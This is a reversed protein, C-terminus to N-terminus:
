DDDEDDGGDDGSDDDEDDDVPPLPTTPCQSIDAAVAIFNLLEEKAGAPEDFPVIVLLDIEATDETNNFELDAIIPLPTVGPVPTFVTVSEAINFSSTENGEDVKFQFSSTNDGGGTGSFLPTSNADRALTVNVDVSGDNQLLLPLPTDTTTNKTSGQTLDGFDVTGQPISLATFCLVNVKALGAAAGTLSGQTSWFVNAVLALLILAGVILIFTGGKQM